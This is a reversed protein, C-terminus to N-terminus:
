QRTLFQDSFSYGRASGETPIDSERSLRASNSLTEELPQTEKLFRNPYRTGSSPTHVPRVHASLIRARLERAEKAMAEIDTYSYQTADRDTPLSDETTAETRSLAREKAEDSEKIPQITLTTVTLTTAESHVTRRDPHIRELKEDTGV